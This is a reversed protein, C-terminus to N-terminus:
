VQALPKKPLVAAAISAPIPKTKEVFSLVPMLILFFGFYGVTFIQAVLTV